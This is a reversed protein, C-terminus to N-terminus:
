KSLFLVYLEHIDRVKGYVQSEAVKIEDWIGILPQCILIEM